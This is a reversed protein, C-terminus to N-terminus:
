KQVVVKAIMKLVRIPNDAPASQCIRVVFQFPILGKKEYGDDKSGGEVWFISRWYCEDSLDCAASVADYMKLEGVCQFFVWRLAVAQATLRHLPTESAM